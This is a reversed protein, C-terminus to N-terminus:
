RCVREVIDCIESIDAPTVSLGTPLCLTCTALRETNKVRHPPTIGIYPVLQHVGPYFYRRAQIGVQWLERMIEDRHDTEIIVYQYNQHETEDYRIMMDNLRARYAEYNYHNVAILEDLRSWLALGMAAHIESMKANTGLFDV